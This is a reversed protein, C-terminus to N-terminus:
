WFDALWLWRRTWPGQYFKGHDFHALRALLEDRVRNDVPGFDQRSFWYRGRPGFPCRYPAARNHRAVVLRLGVKAQSQCQTLRGRLRTLERLRQYRPAPVYALPIQDGVVPVVGQVEGKL